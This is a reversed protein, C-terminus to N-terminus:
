SQFITECEQQFLERADFAQLPDAEQVGIGVLDCPTQQLRDSSVLINTRVDIYRQLVGRRRNQLAHFASTACIQEQPRDLFHTAHNGANGKPSREDDTEGAFGFFFERLKTAKYSFRGKVPHASEAIGVLFARASEVM